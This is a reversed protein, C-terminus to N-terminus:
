GSLDGSFKSKWTQYSMVASIPAGAVDDGNTLLRGGAARLGFTRFYNGSVFEGIVSRAADQTGNRRVVVPRYAFGAQMAALEEFEPLNKKLFDYSDTTFLSYEGNDRFGMGVCCDNQNGLRVLTKPDAVPLNKLMVANVLSFIAANAGIGLAVTLVAVLTFGPSHCLIRLGYRVDQVLTDAWSGPRQQECQERASEVGGFEILAQRRAEEDSM